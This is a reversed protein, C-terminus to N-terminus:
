SYLKQLDDEADDLGLKKIRSYQLNTERKHHYKSLTPIM